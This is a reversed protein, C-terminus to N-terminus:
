SPQSAAYSSSWSRAAGQWRASGATVRDGAPPCAQDNEEEVRSRLTARARAFVEVNHLFVRANHTLVGELEEGIGCGAEQKALTELARETAIFHRKVRRLTADM